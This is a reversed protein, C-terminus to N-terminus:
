VLPRIRQETGLGGMQRILSSIEDANPFDRTANHIVHLIDTGGLIQHLLKDAIQQGLALYEEGAGAYVSSLLLDKLIGPTFLNQTQENELAIRAITVLQNATQEHLDNMSAVDKLRQERHRDLISARGSALREAVISREQRLLSDCFEILGERGHERLSDVLVNPMRIIRCRRKVPGSIPLRTDPEDIWSNCTAIFFTDEPLRWRGESLDPQARKLEQRAGEPLKELDFRGPLHLPLGSEIASLIPAFYSDIQALNWEDLVVLRPDTASGVFLAETAFHGATYEGALNEYGLFQALDYDPTVELFSSLFRDEGFAGELAKGLLRSLTTKGSGTPGVLVVIDQVLWGGLIREVLGAPVHLDHTAMVSVIRSVLSSLEPAAPPPPAAGLLEAIVEADLAEEALGADVFEPALVSSYVRGVFGSQALNYESTFDQLAQQLSPIERDRWMWAMLAVVPIPPREGIVRDAVRDAANDRFAWTKQTPHYFVSDEFDKRRRQLARDAYREQVWEGTGPMFYPKGTPGGRVRFFEDLWERENAAGFSVGKKQAEAATACRPVGASLMCPISVMVLPSYGSLAELSIRLLERNIYPM